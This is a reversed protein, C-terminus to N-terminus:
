HRFVFEKSNMVAWAIDQLAAFRDDSENAYKTYAEREQKSPARSLAHWYLEDIIKEANQKGGALRHLRREVDQRM